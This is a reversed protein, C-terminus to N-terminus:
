PKPEVKAIAEQAFSVILEHFDQCTSVTEADGMVTIPRCIVHLAALLVCIADAAKDMTESTQEPHLVNDNTWAPNRLREVLTMPENSM